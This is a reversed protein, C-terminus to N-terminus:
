SAFRFCSFLELRSFIELIKLPLEFFNREARQIPCGFKRLREEDRQKEYEKNRELSSNYLSIIM